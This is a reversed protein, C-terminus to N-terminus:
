GEKLRKNLRYKLGDLATVASYHREKATRGIIASIGAEQIAEEAVRLIENRVATLWDQERVGEDAGFASLWLRFKGDLSQYTDIMFDSARNTREDGGSAISVEIAFPKLCSVMKDTREILAFLSVRKDQFEDRLLLGQFNLKDSFYDAVSSNKDGYVVGVAQMQIPKDYAVSHLWRIVSPITDGQLNIVSSLNRWLLRNPNHRLPYFARPRDKSVKANQNWATMPEVRIDDEKRVIDGGIQRYGTVKGNERTLLMRRSQLTYLQSLNDPVDILVREGTRVIPEAWAPRETGYEKWTSSQPQLVLNLLLTELLTDGLVYLIGLQGLWGVGVSEMKPSSEGSENKSARVSPKGSSDDFAMHHILWRAAEAYRLSDKENGSRVQFLRLKNGSELIQGNLKKAEYETGKDLGAVQYFPREEHFLWFRERYEALYRQITALPIKKKEWMVEWLEQPDLDDPDYADELIERFAASQWTGNGVVAHLIALLFRLLAINQTDTEGVLTGIETSKVFVDSLSLEVSESGIWAPIWPSDLLNFEPFQEPQQEAVGKKKAM